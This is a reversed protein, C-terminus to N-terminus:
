SGFVLTSWGDLEARRVLALRQDVYAAIVANAQSPLIGSLILTGGAALRRAIEPAMRILPGALINAVLLDFRTGGAFVAHRFGPAAAVTVLDAVGNLRVNEEAVVAAVPDIDTALVPIRFARAIAIALVGSGTGLDLAHRFDRRRGAAEIARLVGATTGHHGTGFAQGAEIEIAIDNSKRRHRDHSGHVLYRGARVPPLGALSLAVWDQDPLPGIAPGGAALGALSAAEPADEFYAVVRWNGPAKENVDVSVPEVPLGADILRDALRLADAESLGTWTATTTM